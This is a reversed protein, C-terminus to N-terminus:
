SGPTGSIVGIEEETVASLCVCFVSACRHPYPYVFFLFSLLTRCSKAKATFAM